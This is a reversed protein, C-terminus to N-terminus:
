QLIHEIRRDLKDMHAIDMKTVWDNNVVENNGVATCISDACCTDSSYFRVKTCIHVFM